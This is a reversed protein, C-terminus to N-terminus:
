GNRYGSERLHSIISSTRRSESKALHVTKELLKTTQTLRLELRIIARRMEDIQTDQELLKELLEKKNKPIKNM